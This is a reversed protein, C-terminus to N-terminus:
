TPQDEAPKAEADEVEACAKALDFPAKVGSAKLVARSAPTMGLERSLVAQTARLRRYADVVERVNGKPTLIGHARIEVYMLGCLFELEGWSRAAPLDSDEIWPMKDRMRLILREVKRDRVKLGSVSRVYLGHKTTKNM